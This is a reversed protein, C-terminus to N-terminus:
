SDMIAAHVPKFHPDAAMAKYANYATATTDVRWDFEGGSWSSSLADFYLFAKVDPMSTKLTNKANAIWQGKQGFSGEVSGTEGIMAPQPKPAAWKYFDAFVDAFERWSGPWNYGDACLWDVYTDGPYFTQARGNGFLWASGCWAWQVNTAGRNRFINVIRRWASIFQSPTGAREQVEGAMADMEWFWRIIIPKGLAKVADARARILADQSGSNISSTYTSGWSVLPIRGNQYDWPEKWSPFKDGWKYYHNDVDLKRGIDTELKNIEAKFKEQTWGGTPQVYAGFLTGAGAGGAFYPDAILNKFATYSSATTDMRFDYSTHGHTYVLAQVWNLTTKLAQRAENVWTAKRGSWSEQVGTEGIMAPKTKTKAWTHFDSFISAFSAWNSNARGPHWNYGDACVWNVYADGPYYTQAEGTNFGWASPCWVFVATTNGRAKFTNYIRRWAAIFASPTGSKADLEMDPFWRLFFKGGLSKTSDARAAIIADQSGNNIKWSEVGGWTVMPIRGSQIDWPEKWGPFEGAWPYFHHDIGLRKGTDTEVKAVAATIDAEALGSTPKVYAGFLSGSAPALPGTPRTVGLAENAPLMAMIGAVAAIALALGTTKRALTHTSAM